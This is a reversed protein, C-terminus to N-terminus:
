TVLFFQHVGIKATKSVRTFSLETNTIMIGSSRFDTFTVLFRFRCKKLFFLSFFCFFVDFIWFRVFVVFM